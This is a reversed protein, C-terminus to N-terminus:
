ELSDKYFRSYQNRSWDASQPLLPYTNSSYRATISSINAHCCRQYNSQATNNAHPKIIVVLSRPNGDDKNNFTRVCLFTSEVYAQTASQECIRKYYAINYPRKYMKEMDSSIDARLKIKELQLVKSILGSEDNGFDIATNNGGYYCHSNNGSITLVIEFPIYKLLRNVKDCFFFIRNLPIFM